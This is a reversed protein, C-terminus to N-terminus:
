VAPVIDIIVTRNYFREEPYKNDFPALKLDEGFGYSEFRVGTKGAKRIARELIEQSGIAREHSLTHNYQESGIIDTHGHIIVTGNEPVLPAVLETLFTEYATISKSKDFDFLISYRMGTQKDSAAKVLNVTGEKKVSRGSNTEGLMVVKYSNTNSEGLISKGPITIIDRAFPGFHQTIGKTDTLELSWWKLLETAGTATFIVHSDLPDEQISTIELPKLFAIKNGGVQLLLEPSNSTIDVRRDGEHLLDLEKTAGAQESPVVPKDRGQTEIRSGNIDFVTVLYNKVTEAMLKGETPNGASAGSLTISTGPNARLRDGVINLLNYYVALQRGARGRNLNDPQATQLSTEKFTKAATNSLLTYRTPITTTGMDFFVANLMPFNEKVQRVAPVAKPARVSFEIEKEPVTVVPNVPDVPITKVTTKKGTGFKLAVGARITYMSWSEIKRPSQGLDTQFSAFPSVTMQVLSAKKSVPIDLGLGAQASFVTKRIDSLDGARDVQKEQVYTFEKRVNVAVTPGAFVYFSSSPFPQMRLSPELTIYSLNTSLTAPCNCPATVTNFSGGRNDYALNLMGGWMKGPRYETLLSFYPKVSNGKHFATPVSFTNTLKQTTGQYNNINAAVSQGFWWVPQVRKTEQSTATGAFGLALLVVSLKNNFSM